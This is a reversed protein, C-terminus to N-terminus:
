IAKNLSLGHRRNTYIPIQEVFGQSFGVTFLKYNKKCYNNQIMRLM